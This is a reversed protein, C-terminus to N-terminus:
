AFSTSRDTIQYSLLYKEFDSTSLPKSYLYGQLQECKLKALFKLQQNTEVGEAVVQMGLNHAITVITAVMNRGQESQEIDDVFAKDIKLTNLPFKKLYALSSYGTGFDDLALHVGLARIQLMTEIARQPSDMVTGETIELELYRAPLQSEELINAILTVLNPQTFQVASLNVAIRGDFLGADVWQKTAFCAKRLVVEGIEVIQGTEESVPIFVVPSILGKTPTEFRVLAEMGAIKGTTIEIKPQYYVSFLDKKLGHRILSEIQLRTVAKKNMSENFFQYKNGGLGKAHYMATDANKLLEQPTAGDEPYLVIGISSYLVIEQNKLKLPQAITDLINKAITTITHIDNTEEIIISFEDGGLRYVTDQKRSASVMREAVKCLLVDGVQHGMSDNIKKFNDLDFVLLAHPTKNKVLQLQNAQFFSRNPLGTLTDTNALKRLEAETEKRQSIDSFVAVFNSICQNEDRIVDINFDALFVSNDQRTNEVEGHWSGKTLLHKKINTSFSTPYRPFRLSKGVMKERSKGTIRLFAKNVDLIVFERDYIVVADSINAICKAFLKLREEAKKIQSIDKLTGTMRTAVGKDDREVIKGRDLVWIWNGEKDKVRYTSEFHETKDEFHAELAAKVRPIDQQHINTNDSPSKPQNANNKGKGTNSNTSANRQGDQPFELLGWINSRFIKGTKINWDWMEDGSGWLSLKLREESLKIQMHYKRKHRMQQLVYGICCLAILGYVLMALNSLWWPPLVQIKLNNTQTLSKDQLDYAQVEFTYDGANLNTYTARRNNIDTEIWEEDLGLLRYRYKLQSPLKTNPSVFDISVPSQYHQLRLADVTNLQKSLTFVQKQNQENAHKHKLFNNDINIKKNAIFVDTFFPKEIKPTVSLLKKPDFSIYGNTSGFYLQGTSSKLASFQIFDNNSSFFDTGFNRVLGAKPNIVSIGKHTAIWANNEEDILIDTIFNNALQNNENFVAIEETSKNILAIGQTESGLWLWNKSSTINNTHAISFNTPKNFKLRTFSKNHIQFSYAEDNVTTVLIQSNDFAQLSLLNATTPQYYNIEQKQTDYSTLLGEDNIYWLQQELFTLQNDLPPKENQLWNKHEELQLNNTNLKFLRNDITILWLDNNNSLIHTINSSIKIQSKQIDNKNVSYYLDGEETAFWITGNATQAIAEVWLNDNNENNINILGHFFKSKLPTFKNIGGGYSGVWINGSTDKYIDMLWNESLSFKESSHQYATLEYNLLSLSNLGKSSALWIRTSDIQEIARIENSLTPKESDTSFHKLLQYDRSLIYLGNDTALWYQSEIIKMDFLANAKLKLNWKNKENLSIGYSLNNSIWHIGHNFSGLWYNGNNDQFITKIEKFKEEFGMIHIREFNENKYNFKQLGKETSIWLSNIKDQSGDKPPQSQYIDWIINDQLSQKDGTIHFFNDFNDQEANYRSLGNQTGVWLTNNRDIFVKRIFNDAISHPDTASYRYQVFEHGDFRNLGDETAFWLFGHKDQTISFVSNQSLGHETSYQKFKLQENAQLAFAPVILTALLLLFIITLSTVNSFFSPLHRFFSLLM